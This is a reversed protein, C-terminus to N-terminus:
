ITLCMRLFSATKMLNHRLRYVDSKITVSEGLIEEPSIWGPTGAESSEDGDSDSSGLVPIGTSRSSALNLSPYVKRSVAFDCIKVTRHANNSILMNSTKLDRHIVGRTHLFSVGKAADHAYRLRVPLSLRAVPKDDLKAHGWRRLYDFVSGLCLEMVIALHEANQTVAGYFTVVNPHRLRELM